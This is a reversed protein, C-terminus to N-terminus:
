YDLLYSIVEETVLISDADIKAGDFKETYEFLAADKRERVNNVIENVRGEFEGYHNPSRKLLSELLDNKTEKNLALIRM